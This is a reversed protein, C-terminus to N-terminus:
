EVGVGREVLLFAQPLRMAEAGVSLAAHTAKGTVRTVRKRGM